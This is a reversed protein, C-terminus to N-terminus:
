NSVDDSAHQRLMASLPNFLSTLPKLFFNLGLITTLSTIFSSEDLGLLARIVAAFFTYRIFICFFSM